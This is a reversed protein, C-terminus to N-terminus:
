TPSCCSARARYESGDDLVLRVSAAENGARKFQGAALAERLKMVEAASQTFNVYLPDIQQVVALQTAESQGV